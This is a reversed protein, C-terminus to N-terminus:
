KRKKLDWRYTHNDGWKFLYYYSTYDKTQEKWKVFKAKWIETTTKSFKQGIWHVVFSMWSTVEYNIQQRSFDNNVKM